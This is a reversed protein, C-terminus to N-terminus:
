GPGRPDASWGMRAAWDRHRLTLRHARVSAEVDKSNAYDAQLVGGCACREVTRSM